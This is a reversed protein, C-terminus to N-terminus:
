QYQLLKEAFLKLKSHNTTEIRKENLTKDLYETAEFLVSLIEDQKCHIWNHIGTYILNHLFPVDEKNGFRHFNTNENEDRELMQIVIILQCLELALHSAILYDNRGLKIVVKYAIHWFQMITNTVREDYTNNLLSIPLTDHNITLDFAEFSNFVIRIVTNSPNTIVEYGFIDGFQISLNSLLLQVNLIENSQLYVELDVDSYIDITEPNLLSGIRNIEPKDFFQCLFREMEDAAKEQWLIDLIM